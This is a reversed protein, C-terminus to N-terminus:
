PNTTSPFRRGVWIADVNGAHQAATKEPSFQDKNVNLSLAFAITTDDLWRHLEAHGDAFSFSATHGGHFAAPSDIFIADSYDLSPTGANRMVWSGSNEGRMDAGEVWLIRASTHEVQTQKVIINHFQVEMQSDFGGVGAYSDWAYGSGYPLNRRTDGPCHIIDPNPAYNFLLGDVTPTPKKYGMQVKWRQLDAGALDAPPTTTVLAASIRWSAGVLCTSFDIVMGANDNAYMVWAMGLQKQNSLCAAGYAKQRGQALAPLLLAALIAIIAIVVLLEILTFARRAMPSAAASRWNPRHPENACRCDPEVSQNLLCLCNAPHSMGASMRM